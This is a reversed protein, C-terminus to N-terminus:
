CTECLSDIVFVYMDRPLGLDLCKKHGEAQM